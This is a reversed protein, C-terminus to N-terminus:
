SLAILLRKFVFYFWYVVALSGSPVGKFNNTIGGLIWDSYFGAFVGLAAFFVPATSALALIRGCGDAEVSFGIGCGLAILGAVVCFGATIDRVAKVHWFHHVLSLQGVLGIFLEIAYLILWM